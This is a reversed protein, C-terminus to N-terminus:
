SFFDVLFYVQILAVGIGVGGLIISKKDLLQLLIPKCGDKNAWELTCNDINVPLKKCCSKPITGDPFVKNWDAPGNIGCCDM